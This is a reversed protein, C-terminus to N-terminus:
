ELCRGFAEEFPSQRSPECGGERFYLLLAKVAKELERQDMRRSGETVMNQADIARSFAIEKKIQIGKKSTIKEIFIFNLERQEQGLPLLKLLNKCAMLEYKQFSMTMMRLRYTIYSAKLKKGDLPLTGIDSLKVM